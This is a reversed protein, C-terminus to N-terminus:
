GRRRLHGHPVRPALDANRRHVDHERMSDGYAAFSFPSGDRVATRFSPVKQHLQTEALHPLLFEISITRNSRWGRYAFRTSQGCSM